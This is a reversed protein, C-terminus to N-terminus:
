EPRSAKPARRLNVKIRALKWQQHEFVYGFTFVVRVPHTPYFGKLLLIGNRDVSPAGVLKPAVNDLQLFNVKNEEFSKAATNLEAPTVQARWLSSIYKHFGTFDKENVSRGFEHMSEKVLAVRETKSLMNGATATGPASGKRAAAYKTASSVVDGLAAKISALGASNSAAVLLLKTNSLYPIERQLITTHMSPLHYEFSLYQVGNVKHSACSKFQTDSGYTARLQGPLAACAEKVTEPTIVDGGPVLQASINNQFNKTSYKRDFYYEVDGQKIRELTAKAQDPDVMTLGFDNLSKKTFDKSVNERNLVAWDSSLSFPFGFDSQYQAASVGFSSLSLLCVLFIKRM